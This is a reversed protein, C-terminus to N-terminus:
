YENGRKNDCEIGWRGGMGISDGCKVYETEVPREKAYVRVNLHDHRKSNAFVRIGAYKLNTIKDRRSKNRTTTYSLM